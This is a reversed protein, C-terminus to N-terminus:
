DLQLELESANHMPITFYFTTGESLQSTVWIKGNSKEVLDKCFLLGMGTGSENSTGTTSDVRNKFLKSQQEETMGTGTDSISILIAEDQKIASITISDNHGSFKIANTVLNRVVIRVSNPDALATLQETVNDVLTIGKLAAQEKYNTYEIDIIDSISFKKTASHYNDMQSNIWFLLTDLFDSTYDLKSVVGPIMALLEEHSISDDELLKFLGRLTSLPSRLDHALISILRDKLKNSENLAEAQVDLDVKQASVEHNKESLKVNIKMQNHKQTYYLGIIFVMAVTAILFIINLLRQDHIKQQYLLASAKQQMLQQQEKTAYNYETNYLTFKQVSEDKRANLELQDFEKQAFFADKYMQLGGLAKIWQVYAPTRLLMSNVHDSWSKAQLAYNYAQKYNANLNYYLAFNTLAITRDGDLQNATALSLSQQLYSLATANHKKYVYCLGLDSYLQSIGDINDQNLYIILGANLYRIAEDYKGEALFVEGINQKVIAIGLSSHAQTFLVLSRYYYDLAKPYIDMNQLVYGIDNYDNAITKKNRLKADINLSKFYYDLARSYSGMGNYANGLDLYLRSIGPLEKLKLKTALSRNYYYLAKAYDSNQCYLDGFIKDCNSVGDLDNDASYLATSQNLNSIALSYKGQTIYTNAAAALGDAIGKNYKIKRSIRVAMDGYYVSSDPYSSQYANALKNLDNIKSTDNDKKKNAISKLLENRLSDTKNRYHAFCLNGTFLFLFILLLKVKM